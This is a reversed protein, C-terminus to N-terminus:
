SDLRPVDVVAGGGLARRVLDAVGAAGWAVGETAVTALGPLVLSFFPTGDVRYDAFADPSILLNADAARSRLPAGSDERVIVVVEGEDIGLSEPMAAASFLEDCGMCEISLFLLLLPESPSSWTVAAGDLGTGRLPVVKVPSAGRLTPLPQARGLVVAAEEPSLRDGPTM